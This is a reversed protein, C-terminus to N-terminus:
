AVAKQMERSDLELSFCRLFVQFFSRKADTPFDLGNRSSKDQAHVVKLLFKRNEAPFFHMM